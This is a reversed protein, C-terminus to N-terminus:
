GDLRYAVQAEPFGKLELREETATLNREALLSTVRRHAEASLMIEGPGAAAQLRAALNTAEGSVAINDESVGRALIAPGVSIGIGLPLEISAARDRLAFAAELADLPHDVRSGSANFTAMVADGAFKDIIGQRREVAVRALRYLMRM